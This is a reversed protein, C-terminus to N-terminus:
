EESTAILQQCADIIGAGIEAVAQLAERESLGYLDHYSYYLGWIIAVGLGSGVYPGAPFEEESQRQVDM